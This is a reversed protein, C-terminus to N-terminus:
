TQGATAGNSPSYLMLIYQFILSVIYKSQGHIATNELKHTTVLDIDEQEGILVDDMPLRRKRTKNNHRGPLSTASTSGMQNQYFQVAERKVQDDTLKKNDCMVQECRTKWFESGDIYSEGKVIVVQKKRTSDRLASIYEPSTAILYQLQM